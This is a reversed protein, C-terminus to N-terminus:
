QDASNTLHRLWHAVASKDSGTEIFELLEEYPRATAHDLGSQKGKEAQPQGFRYQRELELLMQTM